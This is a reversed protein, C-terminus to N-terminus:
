YANNSKFIQKQYDDENVDELLKKAHAIPCANTNDVINYGGYLIGVLRNKEDYVPSGSQGGVSKDGQFYLLKRGPTRSLHLIGHTAEYSENDTATAFAHGLPFGVTYYNETNLKLDSIDRSRGLDFWDCNKPTELSNLRLVAIDCDPDDSETILHALDMESGSSYTRGSYCIGLKVTEIELEIKSRCWSEFVSEELDNLRRGSYYNLDEYTEYYEKRALDINTKIIKILDGGNYKADAYLANTVHKATLMLGKDSVFFATGTLAFESASNKDPVLSQLYLDEDTVFKDTGGYYWDKVGLIDKVRDDEFKVKIRYYQTVMVTAKTPDTKHGTPIIKILGFVILFAAAVGGLTWWLWSPIRPSPVPNPCPEAGCVINDSAKIRVDQNSPIRNGNIYTGNKSHDQIFWQGNRMEKFTAHYRSVSDGSIHFRNRQHKGVGYIGKIKSPDPLPINPIDAWNLQVNDFEIRDGRRIPVEVNPTIRKGNLYTGNKSNCDTLFIEGNDLLVIEAHFTSVFENPICITCSTSRGISILRM